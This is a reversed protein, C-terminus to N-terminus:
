SRLAFLKPHRFHSGLQELSAAFGNHSADCITNSYRRTFCGTETCCDESHANQPKGICNPQQIFMYGCKKRFDKYFHPLKRVSQLSEISLTLKLLPQLNSPIAWNQKVLLHDAGWWRFKATWCKVNILKPSTLKMLKLGKNRYHNFINRVM